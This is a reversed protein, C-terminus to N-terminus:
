YPMKEDTFAQAVIQRCFAQASKYFSTGSRMDTVFEILAAETTEPDGPLLWDTVRERVSGIGFLIILILTALAIGTITRNRKSKCRLPYKKRQEPSYQICYSM